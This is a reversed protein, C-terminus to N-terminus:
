PQAGKPRGGLRGAEAGLMGRERACPRCTMRAAGHPCDWVGPALPPMPHGETRANLREVVSPPMLAVLRDRMSDDM